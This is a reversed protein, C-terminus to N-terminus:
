ECTETRRAVTPPLKVGLTRALAGNLMVRGPPAPIALVSEGRQLRKAVEAAAKGQAVPDPVVALLAGQMVAARNPGVVSKQADSARKIVLPGGGAPLAAADEIWLVDTSGVLRDVATAFGEGERSMVVTLGSARAAAELEPVDLNASFVGIKRASPVAMRVIALVDAAAPRLPVLAGGTTSRPTLCAVTKGTTPTGAVLREALPGVAITVDAGGIAAKANDDARLVVADPGVSEAAARAAEAFAPQDSAVVAIKQAHAARAVLLVLTFFLARTM